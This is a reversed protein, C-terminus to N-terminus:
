VTHALVPLRLQKAWEDTSLLVTAAGDSLPTSNVATMTADGNQGFVPRLKALSEMSADPRLTQDRQLGLYPTVLDDFFGRKWAAALNRHSSLAFQDQEERSIGWERATIAAHQGMSM